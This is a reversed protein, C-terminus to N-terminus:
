KWKISYFRPMVVYSYMRHFALLVRAEFITLFFDSLFSIFGLSSFPCMSDGPGARGRLTSKMSLLLRRAPNIVKDAYFDASPAPASLLTSKDAMALVAVFKPTPRSFTDANSLCFSISDRLMLLSFEISSRFLLPMSTLTVGWTVIVLRYYSNNVTTSSSFKAALPCFLTFNM